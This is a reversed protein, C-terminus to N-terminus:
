YLYFLSCYHRFTLFRVFAFVDLLLDALLLFVVLDLDDRDGACLLFSILNPLIAFALALFLRYIGLM